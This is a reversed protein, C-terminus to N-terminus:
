ESPADEPEREPTNGAAPKKEDRDKLQPVKIGEPVEIAVDELTVSAAQTVVVPTLYDVYENLSKGLLLGNRSLEFLVKRAKFEDNKVRADGIKGDPLLVVFTKFGDENVADNWRAIIPSHLSRNDMKPVLDKDESILTEVDDWTLLYVTDAELGGPNAAVVAVDGDAMQIRYPTISLALWLLVAITLAIEVAYTKRAKSVVESTTTMDGDSMKHRLTLVYALLPSIIAILLFQPAPAVLQFALIGAFYPVLAILTYLWFLNGYGALMLGYRRHKSLLPPLVGQSAEVIEEVAKDDSM